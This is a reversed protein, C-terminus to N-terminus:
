SYFKRIEDEISTGNKRSGKIFDKLMFLLSSNEYDKDPKLNKIFKRYYNLDIVSSLYIVTHGNGKFYKLDNYKQRLTFILEANSIVLAIGIDELEESFEEVIMNFFSNDKDM